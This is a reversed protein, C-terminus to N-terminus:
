VFIGDVCKGISPPDVQLSNGCFSKRSGRQLQILPVHVLVKKTHGDSQVGFPTSDGFDALKAIFIPQRQILELAVFTLMSLM